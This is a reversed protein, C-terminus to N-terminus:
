PNKVAFPRLKKMQKELISLVAVKNAQQAATVPKLHPGALYSYGSRGISQHSFPKERYEPPIFFATSSKICYKIKQGTKQGPRLIYRGMLTADEFWGVVHIGKYKPKKALCVVTWGNPSPNSLPTNNSGSGIAYIYYNGGYPMFNFTEFGTKKNLYSFNGNVPVGSYYESWGFKIWLIKKM